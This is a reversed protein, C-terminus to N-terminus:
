AIEALRWDGGDDGIISAEFGGLDITSSAWGGLEDAWELLHDEDFEDNVQTKVQVWATIVPGTKELSIILKGNDETIEFYAGQNSPNIFLEDGFDDAQTPSFEFFVKKSEKWTEYDNSKDFKFQARDIHWILNM